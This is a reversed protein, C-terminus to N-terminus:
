VFPGDSVTDETLGPGASNGTAGTTSNIPESFARNETFLRITAVIAGMNPLIVIQRAVEGLMVCEGSEREIHDPRSGKAVLRYNVNTAPTSTQEVM